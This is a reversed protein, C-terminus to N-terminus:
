PLELQKVLSGRNHLWTALLWAESKAPGTNVVPILTSLGEEIFSIM